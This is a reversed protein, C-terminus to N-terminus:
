KSYSYAVMPKTSVISFYIRFEIKHGKYLFPNSIYKQGVIQQKISGCKKGHDYKELLENAEKEFLVTIGEGRHQNTKMIYQPGYKKFM